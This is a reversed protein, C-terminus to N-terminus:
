FQALGGLHTLNFLQENSDDVHFDFNSKYSMGLHIQVGYGKCEM